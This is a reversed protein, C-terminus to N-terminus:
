TPRYVHDNKQNTTLAAQRLPVVVVFIDIYRCSLREAQHSRTDGHSKVNFKELEQLYLLNKTLRIRDRHYDMQLGTGAEIFLLPLHAQRLYGDM